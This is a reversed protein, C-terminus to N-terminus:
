ESSDRMERRVVIVHESHVFTCYCLACTIIYIYINNRSTIFTGAGTNIIIRNMDVITGRRRERHVPSRIMYQTVSCYIIVRIESNRGNSNNFIKNKNKRITLNSYMRIAQAYHYRYARSSTVNSYRHSCSM